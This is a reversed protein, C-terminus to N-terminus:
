PGSLICGLYRLVKYRDKQRLENYVVRTIERGTKLHRRTNETPPFRQEEYAKNRQSKGAVTVGEM